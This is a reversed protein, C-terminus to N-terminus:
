WLFSVYAGLEAESLGSFPHFDMVGKFISARSAAKSPPIGSYPYISLRLREKASGISSYIVGIAPTTHMTNSAYYSGRLVPM